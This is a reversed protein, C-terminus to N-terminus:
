FAIVKKWFIWFYYLKQSFDTEEAKPASPKQVVEVRVKAVGAKLMEIKRAATKSLDIIYDGGGFPGRDNVKVVVSKANKLNTVKLYTNFPLTQHAATLSDQSFIEGSATKKDQFHDAYYTAKGYFISDQAFNAFSILLFFFIISFLIKM